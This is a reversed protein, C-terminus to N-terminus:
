APAGKRGFPKIKLPARGHNSRAHDFGETWRAREPEVTHPNLSASGHAAVAQRQERTLGEAATFGQAFIRRMRRDDAQSM